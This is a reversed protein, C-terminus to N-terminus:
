GKIGSGAIGQVIQRQFFLFAVMLPLGGLIAMAMVGAYHVGTASTVTGLGVPITMMSSSTEAVFPWLFNNWAAVFTFVGVAAVAPGSLPLWLRRFVTWHTAGDAMAAERLETPIGDFFQKFIFVAIPLAIQPLIVAWYTNILNWSSFQSFLPVILVDLPVTLGAMILWFLPRKFRFDMQSFAYAAMASFAITFITIAGSTLASNVYWHLIDTGSLVRGYAALTPHDPIWTVPVKITESNPKISTDFAWLLPLVWLLAFIVLVALGAANVLRRPWPGQRWPLAEQTTPSGSAPATGHTTASM